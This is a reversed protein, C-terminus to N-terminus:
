ACLAIVFTNLYLNIFIKLNNVYKVIVQFVSLKKGM